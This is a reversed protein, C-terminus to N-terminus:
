AAVDFVAGASGAFDSRVLETRIESVMAQRAASYAEGSGTVRFGLRKQLKLSAPNDAFVSSSIIADPWREFVYGLVAGVAETMLGQGWWPEGLWYGLVPQSPGGEVGIVGILRERHITFVIKEEGAADCRGIWESADLHDYPFPVRALMKTVNWNSLHLAIDDADVELPPRLTLRKTVLVEM